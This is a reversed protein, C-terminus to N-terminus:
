ITMVNPATLQTKLTSDSEAVDPQAAMLSGYPPPQIRRPKAVATPGPASAVSVDFVSPTSTQPQSISGAPAGVVGFRRYPSGAFGSVIKKSTSSTPSAPPLAVITQSPRTVPLVVSM